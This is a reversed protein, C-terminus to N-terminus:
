ARISQFSSSHRCITSLMQLWLCCGVRGQVAEEGEHSGSSDVWIGAQRALVQLHLVGQAAGKSVCVPRLSGKVLQGLLERDLLLHADESLQFACSHLTM